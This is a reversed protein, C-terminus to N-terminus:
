RDEDEGGKGFEAREESCNDCYDCDTETDCSWNNNNNNYERASKIAEIPLENMDDFYEITEGCDECQLTVQISFTASM